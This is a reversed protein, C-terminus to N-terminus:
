FLIGTVRLFEQFFNLCKREKFIYWMRPANYHIIKMFRAADSVLVPVNCQSSIMGTIDSLTINFSECKVHRRWLLIRTTLTDIAMCNFTRTIESGSLLPAVLDFELYYFFITKWQRRNVFIIEWIQWKECTCRVM